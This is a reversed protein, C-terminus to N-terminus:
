LDHVQHCGYKYTICKMATIYILLMMVIAMISKERKTEVVLYMYKFMNYCLLLNIMCTYESTHDTM